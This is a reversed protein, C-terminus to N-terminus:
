LASAQNEDLVQLIIARAREYRAIRAPQGACARVPDSNDELDALKVLAGSYSRSCRAIYDFYEEGDRRTLADVGEVVEDTFGMSRLLELTVWTDEVVDHLVAIIEVATGYQRVRQMVRIPHLIYPKGAKDLQDHHAAAAVAIARALDAQTPGM